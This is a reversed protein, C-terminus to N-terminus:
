TPFVRNVKNFERHYKTCGESMCHVHTFSSRCGSSVGDDGGGGGFYVKNWSIYTFTYRRNYAHLKIISLLYQTYSSPTCRCAASLSLKTEIEIYSKFYCTTQMHQELLMPSPYINTVLISLMFMFTGKFIQIMDKIGFYSNTKNSRGQSNICWM